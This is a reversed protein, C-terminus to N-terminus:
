ARGGMTRKKPAASQTRKTRPRDKIVAFSLDSPKASLSPRRSRRRATAQALTEPDFFADLAALDPLVHGRGTQKVLAAVNGTRPHAIVDAGAMLAEYTSFSFTEELNAWHIVFDVGEARLADIMADPEEPTVNVPIVELGADVHSEAGFYLFRLDKRGLNRRLIQRFEPYGKHRVPAGVFAVTTPANAPVSQHGMPGDSLTFHPLTKVSAFSFTSRSRVMQAAAKSPAIAHIAVEDALQHLRNLHDIREAGFLCLRCASSSPEPGGCYAVLNRQLAFNPCLFTADHLWAFIKASKTAKALQVIHEPAHGLLAHIVIDIQHSRPLSTIAGVVGMMTIPGIRTGNIVAYLNTTDPDPALRPRPVAPYLALYDIGRTAALTAEQGVCLQVGGRNTRFDDHTFAITMRHSSADFAARLQAAAVDDPLVPADDHGAMWEQEMAALDPTAALIRAVDDVDDQAVRGETRGARVYHLLPPVKAEAIDPYHNLYAQTSFDPNPDLGLHWGTQLYHLAAAEATAFRLGSVVSYFGLDVQGAIDAADAQTTDGDGHRAAMSAAVLGAKASPATARHESRGFDLYHLLPNIGAAKVDPNLALYGDVSFAASPDLGDRWGMTLFHNLPDAKGLEPGVQAAYFAPDFAARLASPDSLGTGHEAPRFLGGFYRSIMGM